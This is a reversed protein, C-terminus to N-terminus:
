WEEVRCSSEPVESSGGWGFTQEYMAVGEDGLKLNEIYGDITCPWLPKAPVGWFTGPVSLRSGIVNWASTLKAAVKGHPPGLDFIKEGDGAVPAPRARAPPM